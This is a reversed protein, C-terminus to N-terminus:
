ELWGAIEIDGNELRRTDMVNLFKIDLNSGELGKFRAKVFIRSDSNYDYLLVEGGQREIMYKVRSLRALQPTVNQKKLGQWKELVAHAEKKIGSHKKMLEQSYFYNQVHLFIWAGFILFLFWLGSVLLLQGAKANQREKDLGCHVWPEYPTTEPDIVVLEKQMTKLQPAILSSAGAYLEMKGSMDDFVLAAMLGDQEYVYVYDRGKFLPRGPLAAVLPCWGNKYGALFHSPIAIYWCKGEYASYSFVIRETGFAQSAATLINDKDNRGDQPLCGGLIDRPLMVNEVIELNKKKIAAIM